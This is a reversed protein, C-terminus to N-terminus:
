SISLRQEWWHLSHGSQESECAEIYIQSMPVGIQGFYEFKIRVKDIVLIALGCFCQLPWLIPCHYFSQIRVLERCYQDILLVVQILLHSIMTAKAVSGLRCSILNNRIFIEQALKWM